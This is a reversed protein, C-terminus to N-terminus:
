SRRPARPGGDGQEDNRYTMLDRLRQLRNGKWEPHFATGDTTRQRPVQCEGASGDEAEAFERPVAPFQGDPEWLSLGSILM